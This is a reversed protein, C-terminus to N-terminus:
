KLDGALKDIIGDVNYVIFGEDVKKVIKIEEKLRSTFEDFREGVLEIIQRERNNIPIKSIERKFNFIGHNKPIVVPYAPMGLTGFKKKSVFKKCKSCLHIEGDCINCPKGCKCNGLEKGCGQKETM